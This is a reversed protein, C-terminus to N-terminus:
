SPAMPPSGPGWALHARSECTNSTSTRPSALTKSALGFVTPLGLIPERRDARRLSPLQDAVEHLDIAPRDLDVGMMAVALYKGNIPNQWSAVTLDLPRVAAVSPLTVLRNLVDADITRPNYVSLYERSRVVIEGPTHEYVLTATDGVSGLFGLQM